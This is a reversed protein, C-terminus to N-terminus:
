IQYQEELLTLTRLETGLVWTPHSVIAPIELELPPIWHEPRKWLCRYEYAEGTCMVECLCLTLLLGKM